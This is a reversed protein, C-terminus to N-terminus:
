QANTASIRLLNTHRHPVFCAGITFAVYLWHTRSYHPMGTLIQRVQHTRRWRRLSRGQRRHAQLHREQVDPDAAQDDWDRNHSGCAHTHQSCVCLSSCRWDKWALYQGRTAASCWACLFVRTVKGESYIVKFNMRNRFTPSICTRAFNWWALHLPKHTITFCFFLVFSRSVIDDSCRITIIYLFIKCRSSYIRQMPAFLPPVNKNLILHRSDNDWLEWVHFHGASSLM